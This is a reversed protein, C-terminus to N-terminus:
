REIFAYYLLIKAVNNIYLNLRQHEPNNIDYVMYDTSIEIATALTYAIDNNYYSYLKLEQNAKDVRFNIEGTKPYDYWINLITGSTNIVMKKSNLPKWIRLEMDAKGTLYFSILKFNYLTVVRDIDSAIHKIILDFDANLSEFFEAYEQKELNKSYTYKFGHNTSIILELKDPHINARFASTIYGHLEVICELQNVDLPSNEPENLTTYADPHAIGPLIYEVLASYM